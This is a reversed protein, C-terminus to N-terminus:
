DSAHCTHATRPLLMSLSSPSNSQTDVVSSVHINTSNIGRLKNWKNSVKTELFKDDILLTFKELYQLTYHASSDVLKHHQLKHLTGVRISLCSSKGVGEAVGEWTDGEEADEEGEGGGEWAERTDGGEVQGEVAEEWGGEGEAQPDGM